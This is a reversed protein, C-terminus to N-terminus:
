DRVKTALYKEDSADTLFKNINEPTFTTAKKPRFGESKRKLLARLKAYNQISIDHNINLTSKLMSYHTWLTTSKYKSSLESFYVLLVAESFSNVNKAIRWDMFSTYVAMYLKKSKEPLLNLSTIKAAESIEPPTGSMENESDTDM